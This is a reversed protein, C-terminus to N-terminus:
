QIRIKPSRRSVLCTESDINTVYVQSKYMINKKSHLNKSLIMLHGLIPLIDDRMLFSSGMVVICGIRVQYGHEKTNYILHSFSELGRLIGWVSKAQVHAQNEYKPQNVFIEDPFKMKLQIVLVHM